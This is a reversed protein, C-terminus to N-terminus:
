FFKCDRWYIVGNILYFEQLMKLQKVLLLFNTCSIDMNTFEIRKLNPPYTVHKTFCPLDTSLSELDQFSNIIHYTKENVYSRFKLERLNCRKALIMLLNNCNGTSMFSIKTLGVLHLLHHHLQAPHMFKLLSLSNLKPLMTLLEMYDNEDFDWAISEINNNITFYKKLDNSLIEVKFFKLEKLNQFNKLHIEKEFMRLTMSTLNKCRERITKIILSQEHTVHEVQISLINKGIAALLEIFEKISGYKNLFMIRIHCFGHVSINGAVQLLRTSTRALNVFDGLELLKFIKILCDDNLHLLTPLEM